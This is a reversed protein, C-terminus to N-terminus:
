HIRVKGYFYMFYKPSNDQPTFHLVQDLAIIYLNEYM